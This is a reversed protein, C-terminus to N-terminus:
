TLTISKHNRQLVFVGQKRDVIKIQGHQEISQRLRHSVMPSLDAFGNLAPIQCQVRQRNDALQVLGTYIDTPLQALLQVAPMEAPDILRRRLDLLWDAAIKEVQAFSILDDLLALAERQSASVQFPNELAVKENKQRSALLFQDVQKQDSIVPFNMLLYTFFLKTFKVTIASVGTKNLPDLDFTRLELYQVGKHALDNLNEGGKLRVVDYFEREAILDGKQVDSKIKQIYSEVSQYSGYVGNGFGYSSNRVSRVLHNLSKERNTYFSQDAWPSEGFLLTFLWRYAMFGQAIKIYVANIFDIPSTFQDTFNAQYIDAMLALPLGLNIHIGSILTRAIDRRSAVTQMYNRKYEDAPAIKFEHRDASLYPPMSYLWLAEDAALNKRLVDNFATLLDLNAELNPGSPTIVEVQTDGFDNRIAQHQVPDGLKIPYTTRSLHGTKRNIRHGEVEIGFSLQQMFQDTNQSHIIKGLLFYQNLM